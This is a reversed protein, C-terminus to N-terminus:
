SSISYHNYKPGRKFENFHSELDITNHNILVNTAEDAPMPSGFYFGQAYDCNMDRLIGFQQLTEVGEAVTKLDMDEALGIITSILREAKKDIGIRSVFSQDIKLTDFPLNHLYSLSSYGTGFDDISLGIGMDKFEKFKNIIRDPDAMIVSETVELELLRIPVRASKLIYQVNQRHKEDLIQNVSFNVGIRPCNKKGVLSVWKPM